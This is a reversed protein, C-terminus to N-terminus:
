RPSRPLRVVFNTDSDDAERFTPQYGSRTFLFQWSRGSPLSLSWEGNEDTWTKWAQGRDATVYVSVVPSDTAAENVTGGYRTTAMQTSEVAVAPYM